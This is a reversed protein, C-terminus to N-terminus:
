VVWVEIGRQRVAEVLHPPAKTDTIVLKLQELPCFTAFAVRDWKTHDVVAIVEKVAAVMARKLQVEDNNVDTLGEALTLGKAGVFARQIHVQKLVSEGHSGVLSFAEWRVIGGPMLVTIGPCGAFEQAVRMGNTVVTLERRDRLARAVYMATTSADLAISDGDQVLNAAAQAIRLKENRQLRERVEFAMEAPHRNTPIAGGHIRILLGEAELQALDKRITVASVDFRQSLDTIAVRGDQELLHLIAERRERPSLM